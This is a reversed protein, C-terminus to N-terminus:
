QSRQLPPLMDYLCSPQKSSMVKCIYSLKRMWRRNNLSEFGLEQYQKEKSSGKIAGTIALAANYQLSKKLYLHIIQNITFQMVMVFSKYIILLSSSPLTFNRKRLINMSKTIKKLKENIHESFNLKGGLLKKPANQLM